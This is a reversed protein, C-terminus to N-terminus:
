GKKRKSKPPQVGNFIEDVTRLNEDDPKKKVYIVFEKNLAPNAKLVVKIEVKEAAFDRDILLTNGFFKGASATFNLHSSDLPLYRGNSLLGDVNIYNYTGKKLSDTYLHVYISDIKQANVSCNFLLLLIVPLVKKM